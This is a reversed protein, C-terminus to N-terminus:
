RVNKDPRNLYERLEQETMNEIQEVKAFPLGLSMAKAVAADRMQKLELLKDINEPESVGSEIEGERTTIQIKREEMNM